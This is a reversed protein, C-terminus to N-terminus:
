KLITFHKLYINNYDTVKNVNDSYGDYQIAFFRSPIYCKLGQLGLWRDWHNSADWTLLKDFNRSHVLYFHAGCLEGVRNWYNNAKSIQKSHYIGGFLIDWDEPVKNFAESIYQRAKQKAPIYLDDEMILVSDWGKEKALRICNMHAEAIGHFTPTKRVGNVVMFTDDFIYNFEDKFKLLRESREPLNIVM